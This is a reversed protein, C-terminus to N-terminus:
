AEKPLKKLEWKGSYIRMEKAERDYGAGAWMGSLKDGSKNMMLQGAGSYQAGGFPGHPDSSEYWTGSYVGENENEVVRAFMYSGDESPVGEFVLSRGARHARVKHESKEERKDDKSPYWHTLLWTEENDATM